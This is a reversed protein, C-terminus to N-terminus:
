YLMLFLEKDRSSTSSSAALNRRKWMAVELTEVTLLEAAEVSFGLVGQVQGLGEV